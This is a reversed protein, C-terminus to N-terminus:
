ADCQFSMGCRAGAEEDAAPRLTGQDVDLKPTGGIRAGGARGGAVEDLQSDDLEENKKKDESM